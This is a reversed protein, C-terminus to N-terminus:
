RRGNLRKDLKTYIDFGKMWNHKNYFEQIISIEYAIAAEPVDANITRYGEFKYRFDLSSLKKNLLQISEKNLLFYSIFCIGNKKLVRSIESMYHDLDNPLMHTFVSTLFVLDFSEDEYPFQYESAKLKGKPNYSKNYIDALQFYFNPYRPTINEKCWIIWDQVIDFGEYKGFKLYKTLPLAMRGIGCGVELVKHDRRLYGFKKFYKSFDKGIKIFESGGFSNVIKIPPVLGYPFKMKKLFTNIQYILSQKKTINYFIDNFKNILNGLNLNSINKKDM